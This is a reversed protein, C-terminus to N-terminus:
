RPTRFLIRTMEKALIKEAGRPNPLGFHVSLRAKVRSWWVELSCVKLM